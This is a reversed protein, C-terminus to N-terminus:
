KNPKSDGSPFLTKLNRAGGSSPGGPRHPVGPKVGRERASPNEKQERAGSSVWLTVLVPTLHREVQPPTNTGIQGSIVTIDPFLCFCCCSIHSKESRYNYSWRGDLTDRQILLRRHHSPPQQLRVNEDQSWGPILSSLNMEEHLASFPSWCGCFPILVM